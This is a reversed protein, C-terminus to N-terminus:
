GEGWGWRITGGSVFEGFSNSVTFSAPIGGRIFPIKIVDLNVFKDGEVKWDTSALNVTALMNGEADRITLRM